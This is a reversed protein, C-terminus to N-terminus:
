TNRTPNEFGNFRFSVSRASLISKAVKRRFILDKENCKRRRNMFDKMLQKETQDTGFDGAHSQVAIPERNAGCFKSRLM